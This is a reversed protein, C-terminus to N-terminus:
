GMMAFRAFLMCCTRRDVRGTAMGGGGGYQRLFIAKRGVKAAHLVAAM